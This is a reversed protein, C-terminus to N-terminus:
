GKIAVGVKRGGVGEKVEQCGSTQEGKFLKTM